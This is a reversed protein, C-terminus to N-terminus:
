KWKNNWNNLDHTVHIIVWAVLLAICLLGTLTEKMFPSM